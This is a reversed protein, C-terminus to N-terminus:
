HLQLQTKLKLKKEKKNKATRTNPQPLSFQPKFVLGRGTLWRQDWDKRVLFQLKFEPGVGQAV